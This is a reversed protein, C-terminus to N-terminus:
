WVQLINAESRCWGCAIDLERSLATVTFTTEAPLYLAYPLGSFVNPRRGVNPWQGRSSSISCVGGLVVIGYEFDGTSSQWHEGRNSRRASFHLWEWGASEPTVRIYEGHMAQPKVLLPSKASM